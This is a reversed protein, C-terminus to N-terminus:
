RRPANCIRVKLEEIIRPMSIVYVRDKVYSWLFFQVTDLIPLWSCFADDADGSRGIWRKPLHQNFFTRVETGWRTPAGDQQFIYDKSDSDPQPMLWLQLM